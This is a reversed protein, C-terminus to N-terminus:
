PRVFILEETAFAWAAAQDLLEALVRPDMTPKRALIWLYDRSGATVMAYQYGPQDLVIVNYPGWFPWFFSVELAGVDQRSRFRAVGESQRWRGAAADYGRNVVSVRGDHRLSYTATVQDLGREFSHDLRAIEYWRGLYRGLEFDKVPELGPPISACGGVLAAVAAWTGAGALLWAAAWDPRMRVLAPRAVAALLARLRSGNAM